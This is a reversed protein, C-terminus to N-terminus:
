TPEAPDFTEDIGWMESCGAADPSHLDRMVVVTAIAGATGDAASSPGTRGDSRM